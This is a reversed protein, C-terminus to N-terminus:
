RTGQNRIPPATGRSGRTRRWPTYLSL